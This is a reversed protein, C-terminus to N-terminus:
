RGRHPGSGAKGTSATRRPPRPMRDLERVDSTSNRVRAEAFAEIDELRYRVCRASVRVFPLMGGKARWSQLTRPTLGLATAADRETLLVVPGHGRDRVVASPAPRQPM